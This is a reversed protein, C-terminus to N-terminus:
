PDLLKRDPWVRYLDDGLTMRALAMHAQLDDYDPHRRRIGAM